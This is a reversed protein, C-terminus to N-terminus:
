PRSRRLRNIAAAVVAAGVLAGVAGAVFWGSFRNNGPFVELPVSTTVGGLPGSIDLMFVWRGAQGVPLRVDFHSFGALVTRPRLPGVVSGSPGAGRLTLTTSIPVLHAEEGGNTSAVAQISVTFLVLGAEPEPPWVTVSVDYGGRQERHVLVGGNATTATFFVAFTFIGLALATWYRVAVHYDLNSPISLAM